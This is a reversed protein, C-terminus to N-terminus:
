SSSDRRSGIFPKELYQRAKQDVMRNRLAGKYSSAKEYYGTATERKKEIDALMGLLLDTYPRLSNNQYAADTELRFLIARASTPNDQRIWAEAKVQLAAQRVVDDYNRIRQDVKEIIRDSKEAADQHKGEALLLRAHQIELVPNDPFRSILDASIERATTMRDEEFNLFIGVLLSEAGPRHLASNGRARELANLGEETSGNPIFWLFNFVQLFRPLRGAFYSYAGYPFYLDECPNGAMLGSPSTKNEQKECIEIARELYTRGKEGLVGGRYLRGNHAELRGLYTYVLGMYHLADVNNEDVALMKEAQEGAQNLYQRIRDIHRPNGADLSNRWFLVVAQYFAQSPHEPDVAEITSFIEAARDYDGSFNAEIGKMLIRHIAVTNAAAINEDLQFVFVLLLGIWIGPRGM